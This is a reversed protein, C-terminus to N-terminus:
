SVPAGPKQPIGQRVLFLAVREAWHQCAAEVDAWKHFTRTTFIAKTGARQDVAAALREGTVADVAEMEVTATGVTNATDAALGVAMGIIFMQPVFTSVTRMAVKAGKAQTFAGRVRLVDAGPRDALVFRKGLQEHLAKYLVDTLMQRDQASLKATDETAWLSVSDLEIARYRSWVASPNVYVEQAEYGEQPQLQSYDGLFGGHESVGRRGRTAGCGTLDLLAVAVLAALFGHPLLIAKSTEHM